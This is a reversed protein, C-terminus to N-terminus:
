GKQKEIAKIAEHVAKSLYPDRATLANRLSPLASSDGILGLSTAAERRVDDETKENELTAILAPVAERSGIQGLARAAARLVFPNQEKKSKSNKKLGTAVVESKMVAALTAIASSDAIDGLAVAAAGRVGDEKDLLLRELLPGVASKSRGVGLAYAVERRVFENKDSLLPILNAASEEGPLALISSAATARVSPSIDKLAAVAVRSADPHKMAGLQTVADRREEEEVASLRQRQQEIELQLPTLGSARDHNVIAFAKTAWVALVVMTLVTALRGPKQHQGPFHM